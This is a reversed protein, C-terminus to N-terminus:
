KREASTYGIKGVGNKFLSDMIYARAKQTLFNTPQLCTSQNRYKRNQDM